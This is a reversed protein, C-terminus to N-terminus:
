LVLSAIFPAMTLVLCAVLVIAVLRKRPDTRRPTEDTEHM